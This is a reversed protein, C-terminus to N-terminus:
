LIGSINNDGIFSGLFPSEFDSCISYSKARSGEKLLTKWM